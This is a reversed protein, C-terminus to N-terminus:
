HLHQIFSRHTVEDTYTSFSDETLSSPDYTTTTKLGTSTTKRMANLPHTSSPKGAVIESPKTVASPKTGASSKADVGSVNAASKNM